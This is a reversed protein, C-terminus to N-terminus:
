VEQESCLRPAWLAENNPKKYTIIFSANLEWEQITEM